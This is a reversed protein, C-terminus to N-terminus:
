SKAVMVNIHTRIDEWISDLMKAGIVQIVHSALWSAIEGCVQLPLELSLGYLFGAAYLDGAGTTDICNAPYAHIKYFQNGSQIFSGNKGTKVVAIDVIEALAQVAEYPEKGTFARAEDENAFVIDVYETVLEQIFALNAEVVNFSALDISVLCGAEKAMKVAVQILEHNQVLYGEIHFIAHKEFLTPNLDAAYLEGAVGLFTCMTREGDKSVLITSSGSQHKDVILYPNVGNAKTDQLFFEGIKDKGIKGFFSAKGGLKAIGYATNSASGGTAQVAKSFDLLARLEDFQSANILHMGGKQLNLNELISDDEITLLIDTLANGMGLVTKM